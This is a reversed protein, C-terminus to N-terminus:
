PRAGQCAGRLVAKTKQLQDLAERREATHLSLNHMVRAVAGRHRQVADNLRDKIDLSEDNHWIWAKTATHNIFRQISERARAELDDLSPAPLPPLPEAQDLVLKFPTVEHLMAGADILRDITVRPPENPRLSIDVACINSGAIGLAKLVAETSAVASM